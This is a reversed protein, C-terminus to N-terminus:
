WNYSAPPHSKDIQNYQHYQWLLPYYQYIHLNGGPNNWSRIGDESNCPMDWHLKMGRTMELYLYINLIHIEMYLRYLEIIMYMKYLHINGSHNWKNWIRYIMDSMYRGM